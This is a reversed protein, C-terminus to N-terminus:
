VIPVAAAGAPPPPHPQRGCPRQYTTAMTVVRWPEREAEREREGDVDRPPPFPLPLPRDFPRDALERGVRRV